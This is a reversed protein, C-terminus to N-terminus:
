TGRQSLRAAFGIACASPVVWILIALFFDLRHVVDITARPAIGLATLAAVLSRDPWTMLGMLLIFVAFTTIALTVLVLGWRAAAKLRVDMEPYNYSQSLEKLTSGM